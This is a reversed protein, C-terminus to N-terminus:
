NVPEAIFDLDAIDEVVHRVRTPDAFTYRKASVSIVYSQGAPVDDFRYYGLTTSPASRIEGEQNTLTVLINRIGTVDSTMIRGSIVDGAATPAFDEPTWFGSYLSFQGGNSRVGAVSQGATGGETFGSMQKAGGGGAVVVKELTYAGGTAVIGSSQARTIMVLLVFLFIALAVVPVAAKLIRRM